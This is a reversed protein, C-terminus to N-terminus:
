LPTDLKMIAHGLDVVREGPKPLFQPAMQYLRGYGVRVVGHKRMLAMHKSVLTPARGVRRALEQVPLAEGKCLERILGWRTPSGIILCCAEHCLFPPPPPSTENM